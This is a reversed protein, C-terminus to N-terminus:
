NNFQAVFEDILELPRALAEGVIARLKTGSREIWADLEARIAPDEWACRMCLGPTLPPLELPAANAQCRALHEQSWAEM